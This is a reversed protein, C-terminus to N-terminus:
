ATRHDPEQRSATIYADLDKSDIRIHKGLASDRPTTYSRGKITVTNTDTVSTSPGGRSARHSAVLSSASLSKM